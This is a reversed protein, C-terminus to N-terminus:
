EQTQIIFLPQGYEVMQENKVLIDTVIGDYESDIENMLKMAEIICLTQGKKVRDGVQVFLPQDPGPQGYYTGVMPSKVEKQGQALQTGQTQLLETQTQIYTVTPAEPQISDKQISMSQSSTSEIKQLGKELYIRIGEQEVELKSLDTNNMEKMLELISKIDM